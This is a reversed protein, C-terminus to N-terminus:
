SVSLFSSSFVVINYHIKGAIIGDMHQLAAELKRSADTGGGNNAAAGAVSIANNNTQRYRNNGNQADSRISLNNLANANSEM